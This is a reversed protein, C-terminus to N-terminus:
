RTPRAEAAASRSEPPARRAETVARHESRFYRSPSAQEESRAGCDHESDRQRDGAVVAAPVPARHGDHDVPAHRADRERYQGSRGRAAPYRRVDGEHRGNGREAQREGREEIRPVIQEPDVTVETPDLVPDQLVLGVEHVPEGAKQHLDGIGEPLEDVSGEQDGARKRREGDRAEAAPDPVNGGAVLIEAGIEPRGQVGRDHRRREPPRCEQEDAIRSRQAQSM